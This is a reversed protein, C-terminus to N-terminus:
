YLYDPFLHHFPNVGFYQPKKHWHKCRWNYRYRPKTAVQEVAMWPRILTM